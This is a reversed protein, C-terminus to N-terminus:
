IVAPPKCFQGVRSFLPKPALFLLGINTQFPSDKRAVYTSFTSDKPAALALLPIKEIACVTSDWRPLAGVGGGRPTAGKIKRVHRPQISADDSTM